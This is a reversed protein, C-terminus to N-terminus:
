SVHGTLKVDALSTKKPKWSPLSDDTDLPLLPEALSKMGTDEIRLFWNNSTQSNPCILYTGLVESYDDSLVAGAVLHTIDPFGPLQQQGFYLDSLGSGQGKCHLQEDLTKFCILATDDVVLIQRQELERFHWNSLQRMRFVALNQIIGGRVSKTLGPHHLNRLHTDLAYLWASRILPTSGGLLKLANEETLM